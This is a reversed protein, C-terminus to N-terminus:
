DQICGREAGNAYYVRAGVAACSLPLDPTLGTRLNQTSLNPLIRKLTNSGVGLCLSGSAWIDRTVGAVVPASYGKRRHVWLADDIDVNLAAVLDGLEFAGPRVTNRLGTFGAHERVDQDRNQTM